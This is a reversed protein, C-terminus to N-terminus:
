TPKLSMQLCGVRGRAKSVAGQCLTRAFYCCANDQTKCREPAKGPPRSPPGPIEVPGSAPPAGRGMWQREGPGPPATPGCGRGRGFGAAAGRWSDGPGASGPGWWDSGDNDKRGQAFHLCDREQYPLVSSTNALGHVFSYSSCALPPTTGFSINNSALLVALLPLAQAQAM